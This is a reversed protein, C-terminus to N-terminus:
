PVFGSGTLTLVLGSAGQIGTAPTIDDLVVALVWDAIMAAKETALNGDANGTNWFKFMGIRGNLYASADENVGTEMQGTLAGTDGSAASLESENNISLFINGSEHRFVVVYNTNVSINAEVADINGDYNYGILKVQGSDNRVLLGMYGSSDTLIGENLYITGNNSSSAEVRLAMILTFASATAWDSLVKATAKNDTTALLADNSGDFDLCPLLLGPSTQRWLPDIGADGTDYLVQDAVAEDDWQQVASGDSPAGSPPNGRATFINGTDRSDFHATLAM